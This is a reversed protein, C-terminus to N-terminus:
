RGGTPCARPSASRGEKQPLTWWFTSGRGEGESEVWIKGGHVEVIRRVLALGVGTGEVDQDLRNFLGFINEYYKPAIGVGNDQVYCSVQGDQQQAGVVIRPEPQDGMFKVANDILNQYVELLRVRDGHVVPMMPEIEVQVGRAAIQGAVLKSAEVALESLAVDEPANLLRGIRSLELLESLLRGM